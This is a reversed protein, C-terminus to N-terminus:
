VQNKVCRAGRMVFGGSRLEVLGEHFQARENAKWEPRSAINAGDFFKADRSFQIQLLLQRIEAFAGFGGGAAENRKHELAVAFKEDALSRVSDHVAMEPFKGVYFDARPVGPRLM